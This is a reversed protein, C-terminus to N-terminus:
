VFNPRSYYYYYYNVWDQLAEEFTLQQDSVGERV